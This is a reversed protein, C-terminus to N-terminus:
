VTNGVADVHRSCKLILLSRNIGAVPYKVTVIRVAQQFSLIRKYKIRFLWFYRYGLEEIHFVAEPHELLAMRFMCFLVVGCDLFLDIGPPGMVFIKCCAGEILDFLLDIWVFVASFGGNKKIGAAVDRRFCEM